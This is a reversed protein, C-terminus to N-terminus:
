LWTCGHSDLVLCTLKWMKLGYHHLQTGKFCMIIYLKCIVHDVSQNLLLNNNICKALINHLVKKHNVLINM